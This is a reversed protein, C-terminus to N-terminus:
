QCAQFCLYPLNGFPLNRLYTMDLASKSIFYLKKFYYSVFNKIVTLYIFLYIRRCM